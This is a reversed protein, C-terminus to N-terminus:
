GIIDELIKNIQGVIDDVYEVMESAKIYPISIKADKIIYLTDEEIEGNELRRDYEAQTIEDQKAAENIRVYNNLINYLADEEVYVKKEEFIAKDLAANSRAICIQSNNSKDKVIIM